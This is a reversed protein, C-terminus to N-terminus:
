ALGMLTAALLLLVSLAWAWPLTQRLHTRLSVGTMGLALWVAPSFPGVYGGITNTLSMARVVDDPASTAHLASTDIVVPLLAFYYADTSLLLHLPVALLAILLYLREVVAGPLADTVAAAIARLMGTGDLVGLVAGAAIVVMAMALAQPAHAAVARAQADVGVHNLLLGLALAVMFVGGPPFPGLGLVTLTAVCLLANLALRRDCSPAPQEGDVLVPVGRPAISSPVLRRQEQRGIYLALALLLPVGLMQLPLLARWLDVVAIGSVAAARALPGGWPLLNMLGASLALLMVLVERRMGLRDYVPMLAPVAVLFTTPGAGDLHALLGIMVTVLAVRVPQDATVHLLGHLLPQFLGADRMVGAFTIAFMFMMAVPLTRTMGASIHGATSSIDQGSALAALLPLLAFLILPLVRGRALAISLLVLMSIGIATLM